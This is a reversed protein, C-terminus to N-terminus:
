ASFPLYFVFAKRGACWFDCIGQSLCVARGGPRQSQSYERSQLSEEHQQQLHRGSQDWQDLDARSCVPAPLPLLSRASHRWVAVGGDLLVPLLHLSFVLFLLPRQWEWLPLSCCSFVPKIIDKLSTHFLLPASNHAYIFYKCRCTNIFSDPSSFCIVITERRPENMNTMQLKETAKTNILLCCKKHSPSFTVKLSSVACVFVCVFEMLLLNKEVSNTVSNHAWKSTLFTTMNELNFLAKGRTHTIGHTLWPRCSPM